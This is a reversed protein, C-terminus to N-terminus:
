VVVFRAHRLVSIRGRANQKNARPSCRNGTNFRNDNGPKDPKDRCDM